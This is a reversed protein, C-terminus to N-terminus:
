PKASAHAAQLALIKAKSDDLLKQSDPSLNLKEADAIFALLQPYVSPDAADLPENWTDYHIRPDFDILAPMPPIEFLGRVLSGKDKYRPESLMFQYLRIVNPEYRNFNPISFPEFGIQLDPNNWYADSNLIKVLEADAAASRMGLFILYGTGGVLRVSYEHIPEAKTFDVLQDPTQYHVFKGTRTNRVGLIAGERNANEYYVRQLDFMGEELYNFYLKQLAPNDKVNKAYPITPEINSALFAWISQDFHKFVEFTEPSAHENLFKWYAGANEAWYRHLGGVV